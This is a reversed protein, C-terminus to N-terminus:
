FNKIINKPFEGEYKQVLSLAEERTIHGDRVEHSADEVCRGLGFKIYRLYYHMGDFKDDLSAYKSYTGETREPNPKFNLHKSVYYYNEQPIWKKYYGYFYKGIIGADILKKEDPPQYFVLDSNSFSSQSFYKKEKLGFEILDQLSSGKFYHNLWESTPKYPKDINNPDSAYELEGNEGYFVLKIGMKLAIHFPFSVQGM